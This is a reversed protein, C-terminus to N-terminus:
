NNNLTYFSKYELSHVFLFLPYCAIPVANPVLAEVACGYAPLVTAFTSAHPSPEM